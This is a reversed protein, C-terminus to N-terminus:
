KPNASLYDNAFVEAKKETEGLLGDSARLKGVTGFSSGKSWTIVYGRHWETDRFVYQPEDVWCDLHYVLTSDNNVFFGNLSYTVVNLSDPNIPVNNKRLTLEFKAKIEDESILKRIEDQMLYVVKVDKMGFLIKDANVKTAAMMKERLTKAIVYEDPIDAQVTVTKEVEKPVDRTVTNTVITTVTETVTRTTVASKPTSIYLGAFIVMGITSIGFLVWARSSPNQNGM